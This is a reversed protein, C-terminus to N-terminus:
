LGLRDIMKEFKTRGGGLRWAAYQRADGIRTAKRETADMYYKKGCKPCYLHSEPPNVEQYDEIPSGGPTFTRYLLPADDDVCLPGEAEIRGNPLRFARWKVEQQVGEGIYTRGGPQSDMSQSKRTRQM